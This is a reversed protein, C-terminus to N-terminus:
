KLGGICYLRRQVLFARYEGGAAYPYLMAMTRGQDGAPRKRSAVRKAMAATGSSLRSYDTNVSGRNLLLADWILVIGWWINLGALRNRLSHQGNRRSLPLAEDRTKMALHPTCTIKRAPRIWHSTAGAITTPKKQLQVTVQVRVPCASSEIM